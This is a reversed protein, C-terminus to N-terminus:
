FHSSAQTDNKRKKTKTKKEVEKKFSITDVVSRLYPCNDHNQSIYPSITLRNHTHFYHYVIGLYGLPSSAQTDNEMTRAADRFEQPLDDLSLWFPLTSGQLFVKFKMVSKNPTIAVSEYCVLGGKKRIQNNDFYGKLKKVEKDLYFILLCIRILGIDYVM